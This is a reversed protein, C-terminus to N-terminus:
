LGCVRVGSGGDHAQWGRPTRSASTAPNRLEQVVSAIKRRVGDAGGL